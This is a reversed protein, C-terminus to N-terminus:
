VYHLLFSVLGFCWCFEGFAYVNDWSWVQFLRFSHLPLFQSNFILVTGEAILWHCGNCIFKNEVFHYFNLFELNQFSSFIISTYTVKSRLQLFISLEPSSPGSPFIADALSSPWSPPIWVLTFHYPFWSHYCYYCCCFLELIFMPENTSPLCPATRLVGWGQFSALYLLFWVSLPHVMQSSIVTVMKSAFSFM